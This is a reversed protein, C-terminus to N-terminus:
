ASLQLQGAPSAGHAARIDACRERDLDIPQPPNGLENLQEAACVLVYLPRCGSGEPIQDEPIWGVLYFGPPLVPYPLTHAEQPPRPVGFNLLLQCTRLAGASTDAGASVVAAEHGWPDDGVTIDWQVWSCHGM